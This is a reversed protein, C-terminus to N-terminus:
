QRHQVKGEADQITGGRTGRSTEAQSGTHCRHVGLTRLARRQRVADGILAVAAVGFPLGLLFAFEPTVTAWWGSWDMQFRELM